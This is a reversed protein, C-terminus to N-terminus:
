RKKLDSVLITELNNDKLVILKESYPALMELIDVKSKEFDNSWRYMRFLMKLNPVYNVKEIKLNQYIWRKTIRFKRIFLPIDLLIITDAKQFGDNFCERFVGEIIWRDSNIIKNFEFDRETSHRKIDGSLLTLYILSDLEYWPIHFSESIEKALTTKGSGVSGIIYIKTYLKNRMEM